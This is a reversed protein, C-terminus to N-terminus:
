EVCVSHCNLLLWFFFSAMAAWDSALGLSTHHSSPEDTGQLGSYNKLSSKSEWPYLRTENFWVIVLNKSGNMCSVSFSLGQWINVFWADFYVFVDATSFSFNSYKLCLTSREAHKSMEPSCIWLMTIMLLAIIILCSNFRHRSALLALLNYVGKFSHM